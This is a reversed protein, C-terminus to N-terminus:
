ADTAEQTGAGLLSRLRLLARYQTARVAGHRRGLVQAIEADALGALRLEVVRRQEDTLQALVDHITQRAEAAVAAEEPSPAADPVDTADALPTVARRGRDRHQNVVVNHAIAFLWSRFSGPRESARFRPLAALANTFVLSAADEAAGREGLRYYCYRYVADFYTEYLPAFAAPDRQARAVMLAEAGTMGPALDDM